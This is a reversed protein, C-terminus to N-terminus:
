ELKRLYNNPRPVIGYTTDRKVIGSWKLWESLWVTFGYLSVSLHNPYLFMAIEVISKVWFASSIRCESRKM